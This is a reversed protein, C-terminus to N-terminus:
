DIVEFDAVAWGGGCDMYGDPCDIDISTPFGWDEDYTITTTIKEPLLGSRQEDAIVFVDEITPALRPNPQGCGGSGERAVDRVVADTVAGDRVTIHQPCDMCMGLCEAYVFSYSTPEAAEWRSLGRDHSRAAAVVDDVTSFWGAALLAVAVASGVGVRTRTRAQM